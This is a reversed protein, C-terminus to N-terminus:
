WMKYAVSVTKTIKFVGNQAASANNEATLTDAKVTATSTNGSNAESIAIIKRIFKWNRNGIESAQKKADKLAADSAARELQEQNEVSLIPQSVVLAGNSYLSAVLSSMDSVHTTKAAMTITAQFGTAGATVLGAPVVVVQGEAIDTEAIGKGTLLTRMALAKANVNSIAAQSNADTAFISFSVTANSATVSTEGVGTVTVLLPSSIWQWAFLFFLVGLVIGFIKKPGWLDAPM